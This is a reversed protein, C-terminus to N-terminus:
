ILYQNIYLGQIVIDYFLNLLHTKKFIDSKNKKLCSIFEDINMNDKKFSKNILEDIEKMKKMQKLYIEEDNENDVASNNYTNFDDLLLYILILKVDEKQIASDKDFDM